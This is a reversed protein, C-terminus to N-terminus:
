LWMIIVINRRHSFANKEDWESKIKPRNSSNALGRIFAGMHTHTPSSTVTNNFDKYLTYITHCHTFPANGRRGVAVTPFACSGFPIFRPVRDPPRRVAELIASAVTTSRISRAGDREARRRATTTYVDYYM